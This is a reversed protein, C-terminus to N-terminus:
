FILRVVLFRVVFAFVSCVIQFGILINCLDQERKPGIVCLGQNLINLQDPKGSLLNTKFSYTPLRHRPCPIIGILQPISLTFNLIQPIGFIILTISFNGLIGACALTMGAFYCYTDGIFVHSPFKNYAFLSLSCFFFPILLTLSVLNSVSYKASCEILNYLILSITIILSQGVELGNIGAYINIANTYFISIMSLYIKFLIGLEIVNSGFVSHLLRPLPLSTSGTYAMVIPISAIMPLVLKYRWRLDVIDDVFGLLVMFCISLLASIYSNTFNKDLYISQFLITVVLFVVSPVIGLSEPVEKRNPDALNRIDECKNIDVGFIKKKHLIIMFPPIMYYTFVFGLISMILISFITNSFNPIQSLRNWNLITYFIPYFIVFFFILNLIINGKYTDTERRHKEEKEM